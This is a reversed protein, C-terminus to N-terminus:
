HKRCDRANSCALSSAAPACAALTASPLQSTGHLDAAMMSIGWLFKSAASFINELFIIKWVLLLCYCCDYSTQYRQPLCHNLSLCLMLFGKLMKGLKDGGSFIPLKTLLLSKFLDCGMPPVKIWTPASHYKITGQKLVQAALPWHAADLRGGCQVWVLYFLLVFVFFHSFCIAPLQCSKTEEIQSSRVMVRKWREREGWCSVPQCFIGFANIPLLFISSNRKCNWMLVLGFICEQEIKLRLHSWCKMTSSCRVELQDFCFIIM